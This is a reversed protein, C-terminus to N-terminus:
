RAGFIVQDIKTEVCFFRHSVIGIFIYTLTIAIPSVSPYKKISVVIAFVMIALDVIAIDFARIAHVGERPNGFLSRLECLM